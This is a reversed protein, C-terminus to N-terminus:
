DPRTSNATIELVETPLPSLTTAIGQFSRLALELLLELLTDELEGLLELLWGVKVALTSFSL